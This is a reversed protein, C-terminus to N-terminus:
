KIKRTIKLILLLIGYIILANLIFILPNISVGVNGTFLNSGLWKSAPEQQYVSIFSFPIGYKYQGMNETFFKSPILFPVVICVLFSLGMYKKNLKM